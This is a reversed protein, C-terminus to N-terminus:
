GLRRVSLTDPCTSLLETTSKQLIPHVFNPAIENLPYLTFRRKHLQPHPICLTQTSICLRDYYLIDIDIARAHWKKHSLRGLMLEIAQTKKLLNHPSFQTSIQLIQNYFDPQNTVGWAATQYCASRKEITGVESEILAAAASLRALRDGLNSGTLLFITSFISKNGALKNKKNKLNEKNPM